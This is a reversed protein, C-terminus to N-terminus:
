AIKTSSKLPSCEPCQFESVCNPNIPILGFHKKPQSYEVMLMQPYFLSVLFNIPFM